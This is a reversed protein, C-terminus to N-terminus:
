YSDYGGSDGAAGLIALAKNLVEDIENILTPCSCAPAVASWLSLATAAVFNKWM